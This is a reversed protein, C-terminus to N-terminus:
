PGREPDKVAEKRSGMDANAMTQRHEMPMPPIQFSWAISTAVAHYTNYIFSKLALLCYLSLSSILVFGFNAITWKALYYGFVPNKNSYEVVTPVLGGTGCFIKIMLCAVLFVTYIVFVEVFTFLNAKLHSFGTKGYGISAMKYFLEPKSLTAFITFGAILFGLITSGYGLGLESLERTLTIRSAFSGPSAVCDFVLACISILMVTSNFKSHPLHRVCKRYISWLNKEDHLELGPNMVM